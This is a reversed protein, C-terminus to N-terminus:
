EAATILIERGALPPTARLSLGGAMSGGSEGLSEQRAPRLAFRAPTTPSEKANENNGRFYRPSM